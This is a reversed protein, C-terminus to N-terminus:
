EKEQHIGGTYRQWSARRGSIIDILSYKMSKFPDALRFEDGTM